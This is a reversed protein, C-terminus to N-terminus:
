KTGYGKKPKKTSKGGKSRVLKRQGFVSRRKSFFDAIGRITQKPIALSDKRLFFRVHGLFYIQRQFAKKR